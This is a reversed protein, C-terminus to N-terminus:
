RGTWTSRRVRPAPPPPEPPPRPPEWRPHRELEPGLEGRLEEYAYLVPLMWCPWLLLWGLIPVSGVVQLLALLGVLLGVMQIPRPKVLTWSLALARRASMRHDAMLPLAFLHAAAAALGPLYCLLSGLTTTAGQALSLGVAGGWDPLGSWLLAPEWRGTRMLLLMQRTYGLLLPYIACVALVLLLMLGLTLWLIPGPDAREMARDALWWVVPAPLLFIGLLVATLTLSPRLHLRWHQQLHRLSLGLWRM